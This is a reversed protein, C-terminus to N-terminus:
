AERQAQRQWPGAGDSVQDGYWRDAEAAPRGLGMWGDRFSAGHVLLVRRDHAHDDGIALRRDTSLEDAGMVGLDSAPGTALGASFWGGGGDTTVSRVAGVSCCWGGFSGFSMYAMWGITVWCSTSVRARSSFRM